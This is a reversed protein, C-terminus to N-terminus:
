SPVLTEPLVSEVSGPEINKQCSSARVTYPSVAQANEVIEKEASYDKYSKEAVYVKFKEM